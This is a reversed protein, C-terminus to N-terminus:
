FIGKFFNLERDLWSRLTKLFMKEKKINAHIMVM